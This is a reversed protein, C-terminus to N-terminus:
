PTRWLGADRIGAKENHGCAGPHFLRHQAQGSLLASALIRFGAGRYLALAAPDGADVRTGRLGPCAQAHELISRLLMRAYGRRRFGPHVALAEIVAHPVPCRAAMAFRLYEALIDGSLGRRLSMSRLLGLLSRLDPTTAAARGDIFCIAAAVPEDDSYLAPMYAGCAQAQRCLQLFHRYRAGHDPHLRRMWPDDHHCLAFLAAAKAADDTIQCPASDIDVHCSM